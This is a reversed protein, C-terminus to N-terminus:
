IKKVLVLAGWKSFPEAVMSEMCEDFGNVESWKPNQASGDGSLRWWPVKINTHPPKVNTGFPAQYIFNSLFELSEYHEMSRNPPSFRGVGGTAVPSTKHM